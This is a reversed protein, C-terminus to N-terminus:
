TEEKSGLDKICECSWGHLSKREGRILPSVRLLKTGKAKNLERTLDGGNDFGFTCLFAEGRFFWLYRDKKSIIRNQHRVKSGKQGAQSRIELADPRAMSRKAMDCQWNQDHMLRGEEKLKVNVARGEERQMLLMGEEKLGKMSLAAIKDGAEEYVEYRLEHAKIHDEFSLKVLNAPLNFSEWPLQHVKYHHRPVIHHIHCKELQEPSYRKAKERCQDIFDLYKNSHKHIFDLYATSKKIFTGGELINHFNKKNKCNEEGKPSSIPLLQSFEQLEGM